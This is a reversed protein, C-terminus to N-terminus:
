FWTPPKNIQLALEDVFSLNVYYDHVRAECHRPVRMKSAPLLPSKTKHFPAKQDRLDQDCMTCCVRVCLPTLTPLMM